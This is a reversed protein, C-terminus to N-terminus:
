IKSFAELFGMTEGKKKVILMPIENNKHVLSEAVSGLLVAASGTRGRSGMIIMEAGHKRGLDIIMEARPDTKKLEFICDIADHNNKKLFNQYDKEAHKKMIEAFEGYSKGTKYYGIPVEYIHLGVVEAGLDESVREAFQLTLISHDSFDMPILIKHPVKVDTNETLFLVSCPAKQAMKKALSGSGELKKKRGMILLDVDKLKAWRLVNEMAKGEEVIIEYELDAPIELDKLSERIEKDLTEDVPVALDPYNKRIEDPISLDKTIHIFYLKKLGLLSSLAFVKPLILNDMESLDLGIMAREFNKM